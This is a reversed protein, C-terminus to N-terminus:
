AAVYWTAWRKGTTKGDVSHHYFKIAAVGDSYKISISEKAVVLRWEIRIVEEMKINRSLLGKFGSIEKVWVSHIVAGFM